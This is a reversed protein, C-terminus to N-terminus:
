FCKFCLRSLRIISAAIYMPIIQVQLSFTRSMVSGLSEMALTHEYSREIATTNRSRARTSSRQCIHFFAFISLQDVSVGHFVWLQLPLAHFYGEPEVVITAWFCLARFEYITRAVCRFREGHQRMPYGLRTSLWDNMKYVASELLRLPTNHYSKAKNVNNEKM